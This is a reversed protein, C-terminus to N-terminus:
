NIFWTRILKLLGLELKNMFLKTRKCSQSQCLTKDMSLHVTQFVICLKSPMSRVQTMFSTPYASAMSRIKCEVITKLGADFHCRIFSKISSRTLCRTAPCFYPFCGQQPWVLEMPGCLLNLYNSLTQDCGLAPLLAVYILSPSWQSELHSIMNEQFDEDVYWTRQFSLSGLVM